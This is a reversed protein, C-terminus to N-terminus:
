LVEKLKDRLNLNSDPGSSQILLPYRQALETLIERRSYNKDDTEYKEVLDQISMEDYEPLDPLADLTSTPDNILKRITGDLWSLYGPKDQMMLMWAASQFIQWDPHNKAELEDSINALTQKWNNWDGNSTSTLYLQCLESISMNSCQVVLELFNFNKM